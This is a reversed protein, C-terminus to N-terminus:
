VEGCEVMVEVRGKNKIKLHSYVQNHRNIQVSKFTRSTIAYQSHSIYTCYIHIHIHTCQINTRMENQGQTEM